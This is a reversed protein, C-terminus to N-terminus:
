AFINSPMFIRSWNDSIKKLPFFDYKKYSYNNM